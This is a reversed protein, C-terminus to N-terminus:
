HAVVGFTHLVTGDVGIARVVAQAGAVEVHLVHHEHLTTAIGDWSGTVWGSTDIAGGGGGTTVWAVNSYMGAPTHAYLHNHGNFVLDVGAADFLPELLDRVDEDGDYPLADDYFWFAWYEIRPPYHFLAMQLDATAFEPSALAEEICALQDGAVVSRETDLFLFYVGGWRWGFCHEDGPQALHLDFLGADGDGYREHNGAAVLIPTDVVFDALPELLQTRYNTETGRQVVDGVSVAFEPALGEMQDALAAFVEPGDQNDGWVVFSFPVPAEPATRFGYVEGRDAGSLLRYAYTTDSSLDTLRVEHHDTPAAESWVRGDVEVGGLVDGETEWLVSVGDTAVWTLWPGAIVDGQSPPPDRDLCLAIEDFYADNDEGARRVGGLQVEVAVADAPLDLHLRRERWWADSWPGGRAVALEAGDAGLAVLGLLAEDEGSWDRVQASLHAVVDGDSVPYPSLDVAQTALSQEAQGAFLQYDGAFPVPWDESRPVAQFDGLRVTWGTADGREGGPNLLLDCAPLPDEPEVQTSSTSVTEDPASPDGPESGVPRAGVEAVGSHCASLLLLGRVM